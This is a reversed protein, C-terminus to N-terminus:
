SVAEVPLTFDFRLGASNTVKITGGHIAVANKVIALGLGTGGASRSRGKDIRYFREFIHPLHEEPIGSGNDAFIFSGRGDAKIRIEDCGSYTEANSFLNRFLSELLAGNGNIRLKPMDVVIRIDTKMREEECIERVLATLDLSHKAIHSAGEDMRTIMSVDKLLADLRSANSAIRALFEHKKDESMEPHDRLLDVCARIASLPTKLEHNINNTLQKKLKEKDEQQRLAEQSREERQIYLRVIHSAISGLEDHPFGDEGFIREGKEAKAAFLNLRKISLSIRRTAFYGVFSIVATMALMIWIFTKDISLFEVLSHTYPAASRVVMGNDLLTASYFYETDDSDSHREAAHGSGKLRAEAVEPRANHNATPFPTRDNNDFIVNGERDILTLRIWETPASIKKAASDIGADKMEEAIRLNYSQLRTDLLERKFERERRYQFMLFTGVLLWCMMLLTLLVRWHFSIRIGGDMDM